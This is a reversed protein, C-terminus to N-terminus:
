LRPDNRERETTSSLDNGLVLELGEEVLSKVTRRRRTGELKAYYLWHADIRVLGTKNSNVQKSM